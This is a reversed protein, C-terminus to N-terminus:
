YKLFYISMFIYNVFSFSCLVSQPNLDRSRCCFVNQTWHASPFELTESSQITSITLPLFSIDQMYQHKAHVLLLHFRSRFLYIYFSNYRSSFHTSQSNLHQRFVGTGNGASLSSPGGVQFLAFFDSSSFQVARHIINCAIWLKLILFFDKDSKYVIMNPLDLDLNIVCNGCLEPKNLELM